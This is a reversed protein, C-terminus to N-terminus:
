LSESPQRQLRAPTTAALARRVGLEDLTKQEERQAERNHARRCKDHYRDLAERDRTAAAMERWAADMARRAQELAESRQKQRHELVSCWARNRMLKTASVGASLENCLSSWGQALADSAEHWAFAAEECARMADAFMKQM